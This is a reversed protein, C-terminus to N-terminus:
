WCGHATIHEEAEQGHLWQVRLAKGRYLFQDRGLEDPDADVGDAWGSPHAVPSGPVFDVFWEVREVPRVERRRWWAGEVERWVEVRTVLYGVLAQDHHLRAAGRRYGDLRPDPPPPPERHRKM